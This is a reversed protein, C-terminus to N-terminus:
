EDFASWPQWLYIAALRVEKPAPTGRNDISVVLYGLDAIV